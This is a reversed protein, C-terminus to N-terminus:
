DWESKEHYFRGGMVGDFICGIMRAPGLYRSFLYGSNTTSEVLSGYYNIVAGSVSRANTTTFVSNNGANQRLYWRSGNTTENSNSNEGGWLQGLQLVCGNSTPFVPDTGPFVWEATEDASGLFANSTLSLDGNFQFTSLGLRTGCSPQASILDTLSSSIRFLESSGPAASFADHATISSTTSSIIRRVEWGGTEITSDKCWLLFRGADSSAPAEGSGYQIVTPTSGATTTFQKYSGSIAVRSGSFTISATM